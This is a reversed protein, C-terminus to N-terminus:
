VEATGESGEDSAIETWPADLKEDETFGGVGSLASKGSKKWAGALKNNKEVKAKQREEWIKKPLYMAVLETKGMSSIEFHGETPGLFSEAMDPTLRKYGQAIMSPVMDERVWRTVVDKPAKLSLKQMASGMVQRDVSLSRSLEAIKEGRWSEHFEKALNYRLANEKSLQKVVADALPLFDSTQEFLLKVGKQDLEVISAVDFGTGVVVKKALNPTKSGKEEEQAAINQATDQKEKM